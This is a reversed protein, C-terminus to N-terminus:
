YGNRLAALKQLVEEVSKGELHIPQGRGTMADVTWTQRLYRWEMTVLGYQNEVRTEDECGTGPCPEATLCQEKPAPTPRPHRHHKHLVRKDRNIDRQDANIDKQDANIDKQDANDKQDKALDAKDKQIDKQDSRLDQQQTQGPPTQKQAAPAQRHTCGAVPIVTAVVFLLPLLTRNM